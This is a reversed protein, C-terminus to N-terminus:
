INFWNQTSSTKNEARKKNREEKLIEEMNKAPTESEPKAMEAFKQGISLGMNSGPKSSEFSAAFDLEKDNNIYGSIYITNTPSNEVKTIEITDIGNFNYNLYKEIYPEQEKAVLDLREQEKRQDENIKYNM